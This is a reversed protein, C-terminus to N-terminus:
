KIDVFSLMCVEVAGDPMPRGFVHEYRKIAAGLMKSHPEQLYNLSSEFVSEWIAPNEKKGRFSGGSESIPYLSTSPGHGHSESGGYNFGTVIFPRAYHRFAESAVELGSKPEEMSLDSLVLSYKEKAEYASKIKEKAEKASSAYDVKVGLNKVQKFYKKAGEINAPMDDVILINKIENEKLKQELSM